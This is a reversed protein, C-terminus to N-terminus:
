QKDIYKEALVRSPFSKVTYYGGLWNKRQVNFVETGDGLKMVDIKYKM